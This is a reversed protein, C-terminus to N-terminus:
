KVQASLRYNFRKGAELSGVWVEYKGKSWDRGEIVADRKESSGFNCRITNSNPGRVMLTTDRGRSDVALRLKSVNEELVMIHDPNPSAYGICAKSDKDINAITSLPFAGTTFGTVAFTRRESRSAIILEPFNAGGALTPLAVLALAIPIPILRTAIKNLM